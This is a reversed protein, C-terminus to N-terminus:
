GFLRRAHSRRRFQASISITNAHGYKAGRVAALQATTPLTEGNIATGSPLSAAAPSAIWKRAIGDADVLSFRTEKQPRRVRTSAPVTLVPCQAYRAVHEAVSGLLAHRFGTRGYTSMVVLGVEPSGSRDCIRDTPDGSQVEAECPIDNPVYCRKFEELRQQATAKAVKVLASLSPSVRNGGVVGLGSYVVHFLHLKANLKGALFSAYSAGAVSCDSVDTPALINSIGLDYKNHEAALASEYTKGRPILVLCPACRIVHEATSGLVARKVGSEGHTALAILDAHIKAAVKWIQESPRGAFVHCNEPAFKIDHQREIDALRDCVFTLAGTYNAMLNKAREVAAKANSPRVNLVHIAAGFRRAVRILYELVRFSERSFDVPVLITRIQPARDGHAARDANSVFSTKSTMPHESHKALATM